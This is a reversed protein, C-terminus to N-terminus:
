SEKGGDDDDGDITTVRGRSWVETQYGEGDNTSYPSPKKPCLAMRPRQWRHKGRGQEEGGNEIVCYSEMM